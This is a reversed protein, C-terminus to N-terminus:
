CLTPLKIGFADFVPARHHIAAVISNPATNPGNTM